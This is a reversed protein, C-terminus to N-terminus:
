LKMVNYNLKLLWKNALTIDFVDSASFDVVHNYHDPRWDIMMYGVDRIIMHNHCVKATTIKSHCQFVYEDGEVGCVVYYTENLRHFIGVGTTLRKTYDITIPEFVIM